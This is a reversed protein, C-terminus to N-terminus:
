KTIRGAILVAAAQKVAKQLEVNGPKNECVPCVLFRFREKNGCDTCMYWDKGRETCYFVSNEM